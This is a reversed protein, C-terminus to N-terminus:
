KGWYAKREDEIQKQIRRTEEYDAIAAQLDSPFNKDYNVRNFDWKLYYLAFVVDEVKVGQNIAIRKFMWLLGFTTVGIILGTSLLIGFSAVLIASATGVGSLYWITEKSFWLVAFSILLLLLTRKLVSLWFIKM